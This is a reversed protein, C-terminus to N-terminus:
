FELGWLSFCKILTACRLNQTTNSCMHRTFTFTHLYKRNVIATSRGNLPTKKQDTAQKCHSNVKFRIVTEIANWERKCCRM